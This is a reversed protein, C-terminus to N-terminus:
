NSRAASVSVDLPADLAVYKDEDDSSSLNPQLDGIRLTHVEVSSLTPYRLKEADAVSEQGPKEQRMLVPRAGPTYPGICVKRDDGLHIWNSNLDEWFVSCHRKM